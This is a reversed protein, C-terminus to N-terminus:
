VGTEDPVARLPSGHRRQLRIERQVLPDKEADVLREYVIDHVLQHPRRGELFCLADFVEVLRGNAVVANIKRTPIGVMGRPGPKRKM